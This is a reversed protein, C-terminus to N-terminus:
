YNSQHDGNLNNVQLEPASPGIEPTATEKAAPAETTESASALCRRASVVISPNFRFPESHSIVINVIEDSFLFVLRKEAVQVIM